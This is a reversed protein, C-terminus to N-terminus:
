NTGRRANPERPTEKPTHNQQWPALTIALKPKPRQKCRNTREGPRSKRELKALTSTSKTRHHRRKRTNKFRLVLRRARQNQVEHRSSTNRSILAIPRNSKHNKHQGPPSILLKLPTNLNTNKKTKAALAIRVAPQNKIKNNKCRSTRNSHCISKM